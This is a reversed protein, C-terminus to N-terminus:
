SKQEFINRAAASNYFASLRRRVLAEVYGEERLVDVVPIAWADVEAMVVERTVGVDGLLDTLPRDGYKAFLHAVVARTCGEFYATKRFQLWFEYGLVVFEQLQVDGLGEQLDAMTRDEMAAWAAMVTDRVEEDSLARQLFQESRSILGPLSDSLWAKLRREFTEDLGPVAKNAMRKGFKMMSGVGPVSKSILNDEYLYNVVGQYVVNSVLEQYVPHAMIESIMRERQQRLELMEEVFGTAQERTVIDGLATSAQVPANLVETAMEGALEPIGADLEMNVVVRQITEMVQNESALRSLTIGSALDLVEGVEHKLFKRLKAGKLSAVEHKIHLELVQSAPDTKDKTM